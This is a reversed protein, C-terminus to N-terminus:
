AATPCSSRATDADSPHAATWRSCLREARRTLAIWFANRPEDADLRGISKPRRGAADGVANACAIARDVGRNTGGVRGADREVNGRRVLRLGVADLLAGDAVEGLAVPPQVHRATREVGGVRHKSANRDARTIGVACPAAAVEEGTKADVNGV